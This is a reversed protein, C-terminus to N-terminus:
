TKMCPSNYELCATKITLPVGSTLMRSGAPALRETAQCFHSATAATSTPTAATLLQNVLENPPLDNLDLLIAFDTAVLSFLTARTVAVRFQEQVSALSM